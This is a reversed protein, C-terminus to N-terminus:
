GIRTWVRGAWLADFFATPGDSGGPRVESFRLDRGELTWRASFLVPEACGEDQGLAVQVRGNTLCYTGDDTSRQGNSDRVDEIGVRGDQFTLTWRGAHNDALEQTAGQALLEEATVAMRYVGQPFGGATDAIGDEAPAGSDADGCPAVPGPAQAAAKLRRIGSLLTATLPDDDLADYVPAAAAELAALDAEGATVVVGGAACFEQALSADASEVTLVEDRAAAASERLVAAHASTLSDLVSTNVVLTQVGASVTLNGATVTRDGPLGTARAFTSDAGGVSGDAVGADWASGSVDDADAGWAHYTAYVTQSRPARITTGAFADPTTMPGGHSFVHRLGDPLLALGTVGATELGALMREALESQVVDGVLAQSTLLMPANLVRLSSVGETDWARSPILGMDLDGRRVRRAVRQDWDREELGDASGARYVPEVILEGGSSEQVRRAFDRVVSGTPSSEGDHTGLRLTVPPASGGAKSAAGSGGCGVLVTVVALAVATSRGWRDVAM